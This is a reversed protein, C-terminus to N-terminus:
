WALQDKGNKEMDVNWLSRIKKQRDADVDVDSSCVTSCELGLIENNQERMQMSMKNQKIKINEWM